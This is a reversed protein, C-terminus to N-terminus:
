AHRFIKLGWWNVIVYCVTVPLLLVMLYKYYTDEALADLGLIDTPACFPGVVISWFGLFFATSSGVVLTWGWRLMESNGNQEVNAEVEVDM